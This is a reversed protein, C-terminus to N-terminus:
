EITISSAQRRLIKVGPEYDNEKEFLHIARGHKPFCIRSGESVLVQLCEKRNTMSYRHENLVDLALVEGSDTRVKLVYGSDMEDNLSPSYTSGIITGSVFHRNPNEEMDREIAANRPEHYFKDLCWAGGLATGFFSTALILGPLCTNGM